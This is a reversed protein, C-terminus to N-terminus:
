FAILVGTSLRIVRKNYEILSEGYGSFFQMYWLIGNDFIDYGGSLEVAGKNDDFNLNNRLLLNVFFGKGMYGLNIDFSGMYHRIDPNDDDNGEPIRYWIRPVFIFKDKVFVSSLYVRNWSRSLGEEDGKGNSEHLLGVRVNELSPVNQLNLPVNVFFEPLFNIERFPSSNKYLQWWARQTYAFVYDEDLGLLNEFLTKKISIQFKAEARRNDGSRGKFTYSLPMFYNVNHAKIGLFNEGFGKGLYNELAMQAFDYQQEKDQKKATALDNSAFEQGSQTPSFEQTQPAPSQQSALIQAKQEKASLATNQEQSLNQALNEQAKKATQEKSLNEQGENKTENQPIQGATSEKAFNQKSNPAIQKAKNKEDFPKTDASQPLNKSLMIWTDFDKALVFTGLILALYLFKKM